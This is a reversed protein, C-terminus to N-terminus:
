SPGRQGQMVTNMRAQWDARQAAYTSPPSPPSASAAKAIPAPPPAVDVPQAPDPVPASDPNPPVDMADSDAPPAADAVQLPPPTRRAPTTGPMPQLSGAWTPIAADPVASYTPKQAEATAAMASLVSPKGVPRTNPVMWATLLACVGAGLVARIAWTKHQQDM